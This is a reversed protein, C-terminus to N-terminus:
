IKFYLSTRQKRVVFGDLRGLGKVSSAGGGELGQELKVAFVVEDATGVERSVVVVKEVLVKETVLALQWNHCSLAV